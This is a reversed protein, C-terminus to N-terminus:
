ICLNKFFLLQAHCKLHLKITDTTTKSYADTQSLNTPAFLRKGTNEKSSISVQLFFLM